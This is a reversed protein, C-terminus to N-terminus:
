KQPDQNFPSIARRKTAQAECPHTQQHWLYVRSAATHHAVDGPTLLAKSQCSLTAAGAVVHGGEEGQEEDDNGEGEEAANWCQGGCEPPHVFSGPTM